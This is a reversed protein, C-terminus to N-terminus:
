LGSVVLESLAPMRWCSTNAAMPTDGGFFTLRKAGRGESAKVTALEAGSKFSPAVTACNKSHSFRTATRMCGPPRRSSALILAPLLPNRTAVQRSPAWSSVSHGVKNSSKAVRLFGAEAGFFLGACFRGAAAGAAAARADSPSALESSLKDGRGSKYLSFVPLVMSPVSRCFSRGLPQPVQLFRLPQVGDHQRFRPRRQNCLQSGFAFNTKPSIQTKNPRTTQDQRKGRNDVGRYRTRNM